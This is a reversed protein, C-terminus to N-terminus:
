KEHANDKQENEEIIISQGTNILHQKKNTEILLINIAYEGKEFDKKFIYAKFGSKVLDPRKFRSAIDTRFVIESAIIYKKDKKTLVIYKKTEDKKSNKIFAWGYIRHYTPFHHMFEIQYNIKNDSILLDKKVLATKDEFYDKSLTTHPPIYYLYANNKYKLIKKDKILKSIEKRWIPYTRTSGRFVLYSGDKCKNEISKRLFSLDVEGSIIHNQIGKAYYNYLLMFDNTYINVCKDHSHIIKILEKTTNTSGLNKQFLQQKKDAFDNNLTGFYLLSLLIILFYIVISPIKKKHYWEIFHNFNISAFMILFTHDWWSNRPHYSAYKGWAFFGIILFIVSLVAVSNYKRTDKLIFIIFGGVMIYPMIRPIHFLNAFPRFLPLNPPFAFFKNFLINKNAFNHASLSKLLEINGTVGIFANIYYMSLFTIFYLCALLIIFLLRKKNKFDKLNLLIYVFDFILFALGSQKTISAIGALLLSAYVYNDFKKDGKNIEAAYITILSLMGIIMVPMDVTGAITSHMLLYPYILIAMFLFAKNKYEIFFILPVVITVLPLYFLAMKATWWIDSTGQIKYIISYLSPVLLPYAAHIPHYENKYLELGWRNWSVVADWETFGTGASQFLPFLLIIGLGWIILNYKKHNPTNHHNYMYIISYIATFVALLYILLNPLNLYYSLLTITWISTFSVVISYIIILSYKINPFRYYIFIHPSIFIAFFGIFFNLLIM